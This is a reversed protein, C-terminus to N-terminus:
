QSMFNSTFMRWGGPVCLGKAISGKTCREVFLAVVKITIDEAYDELCFFFCRKEVVSHRKWGRTKREWFQEFFVLKAFGFRSVKWEDIKIDGDVVDAKNEVFMERGFIVKWLCGVLAIVTCLFSHRPFFVFNSCTCFNYLGLGPSLHIPFTTFFSRMFLFEMGRMLTNSYPNPFVYFHIGNLDHFM